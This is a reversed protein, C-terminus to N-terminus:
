MRVPGATLKVAEPHRVALGNLLSSLLYGLIVGTLNLLLDDVDFSGVHFALQACEILFSTMMGFFVCATFSRGRETIRPLLYGYPVFALVNGALNLLVAGAGLQRRYTWFRRIENFLVLNYHLEAEAYAEPTRGLSESFCTFYLLVLVYALFAAWRLM